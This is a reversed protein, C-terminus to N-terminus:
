ASYRSVNDEARSSHRSHVAGALRSARPPGPPAVLEPPTTIHGPVWGRALLGVTAYGPPTASITYGGTTSAALVMNRTSSLRSLTVPVSCTGRLPPATIAHLWT